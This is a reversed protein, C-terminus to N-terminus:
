NLCALEKDGTWNFFTRRILRMERISEEIDWPKDFTETAKSTNLNEPRTITHRLRNRIAQIAEVITKVIRLTTSM